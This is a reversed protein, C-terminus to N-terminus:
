NTITITGTIYKLVVVNGDQDTIDDGSIKFTYTGTPADEPITAVILMAEGDIVKRLSTGYWIVRCGDKYKAPEQLSLGRFVNDAGPDVWDILIVSDNYELVFNM